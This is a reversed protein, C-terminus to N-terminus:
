IGEDNAAGVALADERVFALGQVSGAARFNVTKRLTTADWLHVTGEDTGAALFRGKPTFAVANVWEEVSLLTARGKGTKVDWLRATGDAGGSLLSKGDPAFAVCRVEGKHGLFRRLERGSATEWLRLSGDSSVSALTKGDPAFALALVPGGHRWRITGARAVSDPPLADGARDVRPPAAPARVSIFLALLLVQPARAM